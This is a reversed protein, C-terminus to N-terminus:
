RSLLRKWWPRAMPFPSRAAVASYEEGEDGMVRAHFRAAIQLMKELTAGDPNKVTVCGRRHGFWVPGKGEPHATWVALGQGEITIVQGTPSTATARPEPRMEPDSLLYTSWEDLSIPESESEIWDEARTIHVDYGV